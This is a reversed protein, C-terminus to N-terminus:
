PPSCVPRGTVNADHITTDRGLRVFILSTNLDSDYKKIFDKDYEEAGKRYHKYFEARLDGRISQAEKRQSHPPPAETHIPLFSHGSIVWRGTGRGASCRWEGTRRYWQQSRTDSILHSM